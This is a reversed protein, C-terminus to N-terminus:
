KKGDAVRKLCIKREHGRKNEYQIGYEQLLRSNLVNLKRTVVNAQIQMDPLKEVLETATGQWEPSEKTLLLNIAELLPNIPEKWLETEARKFNWVCHERDFEITLKQDAQDRGAIDLVAINDTRKKKQMIFAGDAAGLLGNTGSIMEFSDESQLKRTHHVVLVCVNHKDSFQKLKTVIDYDSSYSYRDGGVERIKQLTDIMILKTDAHEKMFKSLQEELGENLSKSMTAFYFNSTSEMGFMKSLRKQLRSFDDELALYLVSGQNVKYDWLSIGMSVHYGLQAMFFSKGVKPAGVFLYTGNYILGDVIPVKPPFATDYLEEMTITYLVGQEFNKTDQENSKQQNETVIVNVKTSQGKDTAASTIPVIKEKKSMPKGGKEKPIQFLSLRKSVM